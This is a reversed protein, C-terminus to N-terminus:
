IFERKLIIKVYSYHIFSLFYSNIIFFNIKYFFINKGIKLLEKKNNLKKKYKKVDFNIFM